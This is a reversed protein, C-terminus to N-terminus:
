HVVVFFCGFSLSCLDNLNVAKSKCLIKFVDSTCYTATSTNCIYYSGNMTIDAKMSLQVFSTENDSVGVAVPYNLGAERWEIQIPIDDYLDISCIM